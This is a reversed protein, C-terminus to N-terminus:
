ELDVPLNNNIARYISYDSQKLTTIRLVNRFGHPFKHFFKANAIKRIKLKSAHNELYSKQFRQFIESRYLLFYFWFCIKEFHFFIQAFFCFVNKSIFFFRSFTRHFLRHFDFIRFKRNKRFFDFNEIKMSKKM